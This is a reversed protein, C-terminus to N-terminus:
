SPYLLHNAHLNQQLFCSNYVSNKQSFRDSLIAKFTLGFTRVTTIHYQATRYLNVLTESTGGGNVAGTQTKDAREVV